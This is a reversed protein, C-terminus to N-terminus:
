RRQPPTPANRTCAAYEAYTLKGNHDTDCKTFNETLFPDASIDDTDLYGKQNRDLSAFYQRQVHKVDKGQDMRQGANAQDRMQTTTPPAAGFAATSIAAVTFAVIIPMKM